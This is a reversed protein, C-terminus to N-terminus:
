RARREARRHRGACQTRTRRPEHRRRLQWVCRQGVREAGAVSIGDLGSCGVTNDYVFNDASGSIRIGAQTNHFACGALQVNGSTQVGIVNAVIINGNGGNQALVGYGGLNHLSNSDVVNDISNYIYVGHGGNNAIINSFVRNSSANTLIVVGGLTNSINLTGSIGISNRQVTNNTTGPDAIYVGDGGSAGIINGTSSSGILNDHAGNLVAVGSLNNPVRGGWNVIGIYNNSVENGTAGANALGVGDIANCGITNGSIVNAGSGNIRVGSQDNAFSCGAWQTGGITRVGITNGDVTTASGGQILVGDGGLDSLSNHVIHNDVGSNIVIGHQASGAHSLNANIWFDVIVNSSSAIVLAPFNGTTKLSTAEQGNGYLYIGGGTLTIPSSLNIATVTPSIYITDVGASANALQVAGRLSCDNPAGACTTIAANSSSTVLYTTHPTAPQARAVPSASMALAAVVVIAVICCTIFGTLPHRQDPQM